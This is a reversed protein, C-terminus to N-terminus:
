WLSTESLKKSIKNASVLLIIGVVSQFLGVATAYSYDASLIGRRYVYTAITDATEYTSGNYLLIIKEYGLSMLRGLQMILMISITPAIAPLTVHLIRQLRNAGDIAAAEVIEQDVATLAALYIISNWGCSQWIGSATFITRFYQPFMLFQVKDMGLFALFQNIIGDMSLFNVLMGCVVVTSIFHPLYSVTQIMRKFRGHSVENLMLALLIPIPFGFILGYINLLLTNRVLKWFYPDTLFKEFWKFGVWESGWVGKAISYDKFSILVGYMPGYCFIIYYLLPLAMLLYLYKNNQILKWRQKGTLKHAPAKMRGTRREKM